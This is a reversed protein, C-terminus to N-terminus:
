SLGMLDHHVVKECLDASSIQSTISLDLIDQTSNYAPVLQVASVMYTTHVSAYSCTYLLKTLM